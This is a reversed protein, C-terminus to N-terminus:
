ANSNICRMAKNESDGGNSGELFPRAHQMLWELAECVVFQM